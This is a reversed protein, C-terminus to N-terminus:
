RRLQQKVNYELLKPQAQQVMINLAQWTAQADGFARHREKVQINFREILADLKHHRFQPYLARSLKVTCFTKPAFRIGQRRFEEKIFAYDFRANHAVFICDSLINQLESSMDAFAPADALQENTIGTLQTIFAPIASGPNVLQQYTGVVNGQEIRLVGVDIIGGHTYSTGTTEVDIVALPYDYLNPM